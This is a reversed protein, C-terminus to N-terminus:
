ENKDVKKYYGIILYKTYRKQHFNNHIENWDIQSLSIEIWKSGTHKLCYLETFCLKDEKFLKDLFPNEGLPFTIIMQGKAVLCKKLNKLAYLTKQEEKPKEDWGVHELTSISVILDYKKSPKFDVVDRNIVGPAKEYKDVIDHKSSFYHSLVNGVELVRKGKCSNIIKMIIPIEVCRENKWTTNYWHYFYSYIDGHFTFTRQQKLYRWYLFELGSKLIHFIGHRKYNIKIRELLEFKNKGKRM